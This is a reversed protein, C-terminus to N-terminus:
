FRLRFIESLQILLLIGLSNERFVYKVDIKYESFHWKVPLNITSWGSTKSNKEM